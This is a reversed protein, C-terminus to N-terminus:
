ATDNKDIALAKKYSAVALGYAKIHAYANGLGAYPAASDPQLKVAHQYAAIAEKYKNSNVLSDGLQEYGEATAPQRARTKSSAPLFLFLLLTIAVINSRNTM